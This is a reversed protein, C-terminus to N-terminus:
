NEPIEMMDDYSYTRKYTASQNSRSLTLTDGNRQYNFIDSPSSISSSSWLFLKGDEGRNFGWAISFRYIREEKSGKAMTHEEGLNLETYFIDENGETIEWIGALNDFEIFRRVDEDDVIDRIVNYDSELDNYTLKLDTYNLLLDEETKRFSSKLRSIDDAKIYDTILFTVCFTGVIFIITIGIVSKNKM